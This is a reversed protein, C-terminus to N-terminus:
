NRVKQQYPNHTDRSVSFFAGQMRVDARLLKVGICCAHGMNLLRSLCVVPSEVILQGSASLINAIESYIIGKRRIDFGPVFPQKQDEEAHQRPLRFRNLFGLLHM